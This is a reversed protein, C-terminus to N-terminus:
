ETQADSDTEATAVAAADEVVKAVTRREKETLPALIMVLNRGEFSARKEPAGSDKVCEAFREMVEFGKETRGRERGRFRLSVKVKDDEKLFKSAHAAKVELDHLEISPSLRVEKVQIIKQKKKAEKERKQQEYRYKGYDMIRAVPPSANPSILVLDLNRSDAFQQATELLM